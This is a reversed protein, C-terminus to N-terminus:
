ELPGDLEPFARGYLDPGLVQRFFMKKRKVFVIFITLLDGWIVGLSIGQIQVSCELGM